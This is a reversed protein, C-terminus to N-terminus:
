WHLPRLAGREDLNQAAALDPAEENMQKIEELGHMDAVGKANMM